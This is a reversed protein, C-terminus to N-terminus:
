GDEAPDPRRPMPNRWAWCLANRDLRDFDPRRVHRALRRRRVSPLNKLRCRQSSRHVGSRAVSSGCTCASRVAAPPTAPSTSVTAQDPHSACGMFFSFGVIGLWLYFSPILRVSQPTVAPADYISRSTDEAPQVDPELFTQPHPLRSTTVGNSNSMIPRPAIMRGVDRNPSFSKCRHGWSM